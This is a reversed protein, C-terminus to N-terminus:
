QKKSLDLMFMNGSSGSIVQPVAGSWKEIWKLQIVETSVSNRLLRQKEAEAQAQLISTEKEKEAQQRRYEATKVKQEEMQKEEVVKNFEPTFSINNLNVNELMINYNSLRTQLMDFIKEKLEIRRTIIEEVAFMSSCAKICEQVAPSIVKIAYDHGVKQYLNGVQSYDLHYNIAVDYDIKQLDKSAGEAKHEEKVTKVDFRVIDSLPNKIHLGNEAYKMIKGFFVEVAVEGPNVVYFMAGILIIVAIGSSVGGCIRCILTKVGKADDWSSKMVAPLGFCVVACLVFVVLFFMSM